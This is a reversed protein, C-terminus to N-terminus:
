KNLEYKTQADILANNIPLPEDIAKQIIDVDKATVPIIEKFTFPIDKTSIRVFDTINEVKILTHKPVKNDCYICSQIKEDHTHKHCTCDIHYSVIKSKVHTLVGCIDCIGKTDYNKFKNLSM